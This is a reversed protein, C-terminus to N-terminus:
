SGTEFEQMIQCIFNSSYMKNSHLKSAGAIPNM